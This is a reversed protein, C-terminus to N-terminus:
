MGNAGNMGNMGNTGSCEVGNWENWKCDVDLIMLGIRVDVLWWGLHLPHLAAGGVVDPSYGGAVGLLRDGGIWFIHPSQSGLPAGQVRDLSSEFM